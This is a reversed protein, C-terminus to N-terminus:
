VTKAAEEPDSAEELFPHGWERGKHKQERKQQKTKNNSKKGGESMEEFVGALLSLYQM